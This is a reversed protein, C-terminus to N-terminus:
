GGVRIFDGGSGRALRELTGDGNSGLQVCHFRIRTEARIETLLPRVWGPGSATEGDCLIVITDAEVLEPDVRGEADMALALEVAPRLLTGGDPTRRLLATRARELADATAPILKRSSMLPFDNFLIVNFRTEEGAAQLFRMMQEIAEEYRTLGDTGWGTEMSGSYDIIFTVRDSVPRLGFFSAETRPAESEPAEAAVVTRGQRVAIWWTIWSKPNSGISRGSIRRLERVIEDVIRRSGQGMSDRRTWASLADILLPVSQKYEVGQLVEIARSAERWDTSILMAAIRAELADAARRGLPHARDEIRELLLNFPHPSQRTDFKRGILGVLFLDIAEDAFGPLMRLVHPRLPDAENRAVFLLATRVRDVPLKAALHL